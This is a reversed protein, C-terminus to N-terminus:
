QLFYEKALNKYYEHASRDRYVAPVRAFASSAINAYSPVELISLDERAKTHRPYFYPLLNIKEKKGAKIISNIEKRAVAIQPNTTKEGNFFIPLPIPSGDNKEQQVEPIFKKIAIAANELSFLNNHKTPILVVDAAYVALQSFIRWNPPADILIYDYEQRSPELKRHLTSRKFINRLKEEPEDALKKDAPVIDFRLERNVKKLPFPYTQIAKKLEVSKDTLAKYVTDETLTLGLSNTLDQQNPDFDIILVKKGLATLIGALNVTTTTKGVGGKNNYVAVTLAKNPKEIKRRILSVIDDINDENLPLCQTAPFIVKGHKRFLQIHCSNTIIGWQSMKCNSGLLYQKLQNVTRQYQAADTSLNVERGKLELLLYPNTKTHLFVDDGITKRAAQDVAKGGGTPYQPHIEGSQFGLAQLLQNAFFDNVTAETANDPLNRLAAKLSLSSTSM